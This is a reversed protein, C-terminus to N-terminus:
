ADDRDSSMARVKEAIFQARANGDLRKGHDRCWQQLAQVDVSVKVARVGAQSRLEQLTREVGARWEEYNSDLAESDDAILKLKSWEDPSYWGVGIIM